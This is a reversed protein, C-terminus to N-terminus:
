LNEDVSPGALRSPNKLVSATAIDLEDATARIKLLLDFMRHWTRKCTLGYRRM